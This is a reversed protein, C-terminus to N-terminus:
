QPGRFCSFYNEVNLSDAGHCNSSSRQVVKIDDLLLLKVLANVALM